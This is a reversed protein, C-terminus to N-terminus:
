EKESQIRLVYSEVEDKRIHLVHSIESGLMRQADRQFNEDCQHFRKGSAELEKRKERMTYLMKMLEARDGSALLERYRLKRRNDDLIWIDEVAECSRLLSNLEQRDLLQRMKATAAQNQTPVYFRAGPQDNPELVYYEVKKRDVSRLETGIVTCVGHVGYVIQDGCDFV